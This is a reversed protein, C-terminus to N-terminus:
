KRPSAPRCDSGRMNQRRRGPSRTKRANRRQGPVSSWLRGRASTTIPCPGRDSPCRLNEVLFVRDADPLVGPTQRRMAAVYEVIPALREPSAAPGLARIWDDPISDIAAAFEAQTVRGNTAADFAFYGLKQLYYPRGGALDVIEAVVEPDFPVV